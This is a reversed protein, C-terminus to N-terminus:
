ASKGASPIEIASWDVTWLEQPALWERMIRRCHNTSAKLNHTVFVWEPKPTGEVLRLQRAKADYFIGSM